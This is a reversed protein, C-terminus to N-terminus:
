ADDDIRRAQTLAADMAKREAQDLAVAHAAAIVLPGGGGQGGRLVARAASLDRGLPAFVREFVVALALAFGALLALMLMVTARDFAPIESEGTVAFRVAVHGVAVGFGNILPVGVAGDDSHWSGGGAANALALWREHVLDGLFSRDTGYLVRGQPDFVEISLTAPTAAHERELMEQVRPLQELPLGLAIAAELTVKLNQATNLFRAGRMEAMQQRLDAAGVVVLVVAVLAALAVLALWLPWLLRWPAALVAKARM